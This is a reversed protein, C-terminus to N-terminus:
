DTYTVDITYIGTDLVNTTLIQITPSGNPSGVLTVFYPTSPGLAHFCQTNANVPLVTYEPVALSIAPNSVLYTLDAVETGAVIILNTARLRVTLQFSVVDSQIQTKQDIAKIQITYIAAANTDTEYISFAEQGFTSQDLTIAHPM